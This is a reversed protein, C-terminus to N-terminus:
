TVRLLDDFDTQPMSADPAVKVFLGDSGDTSPNEFPVLDGDYLMPSKSGTAAMTTFAFADFSEPMSNSGSKLQGRQQLPKPANAPDSPELAAKDKMLHLNAQLQAIKKNLKAIDTSQRNFSCLLDQHREHLSEL